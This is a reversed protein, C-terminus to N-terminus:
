LIAGMLVAILLAGIFSVGNRLLAFRWGLERIELPLTVIGIMTLTTLFVAAVTISAGIDLFSAALPFAVLSPIHLVSGVVATLLIGIPGSREGVFQQITEPPVFGLLLGIIVVITLVTPLLRAFSFMGRKVSNIGRDKDTYMAVLIGLVALGNVLLVTINM